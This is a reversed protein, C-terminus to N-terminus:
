SAAVRDLFEILRREYGAPDLNWSALHPAEDVEVLTVLDPRAGAFERSTAIPVDADATGHFILLPTRLRDTEDLHGTADWDVDFRWGAIWKATATLSAPPPLGIVPLSEDAAQHDVARGFDILPADLVAGRVENASDSRELFTLVVGGGMSPAIPVVDDAGSALAFDVAAELDAWETDGYRLMGSPDTPLGPDNRMPVLLVPYGAQTLAPLLKGLDLRDLGNGHGLLAWTARRGPFLWTDYRGLPGDIAVDLPETGLVAAPRDPFARTDLDVLNDRDLPSGDVQTFDRVVHPGTIRVPGSLLGYGGEWAVGWVGKRGVEEHDTAFTIRNDTVDIVEVDYSRDLENRRVEVDLASDHLVGAFFWGGALHFVLFVAAVGSILPVWARWHHPRGSRGSRVPAAEPGRASPASLSTM